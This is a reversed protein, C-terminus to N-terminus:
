EPTDWFCWERKEITIRCEGPQMVPATVCGFDITEDGHTNQVGWGFIPSHCLRGRRLGSEKVVAKFDIPVRRVPTAPDSM